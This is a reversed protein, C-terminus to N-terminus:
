VRTICVVQDDVQVVGQSIIWVGALPAPSFPSLTILTNLHLPPTISAPLIVCACRM